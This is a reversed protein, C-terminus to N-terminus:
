SGKGLGQPHRTGSGEGERHPSQPPTGHPIHKTALPWAPGLEVPLSALPFPTGRHPKWMGAAWGGAEREAKEKALHSVCTM